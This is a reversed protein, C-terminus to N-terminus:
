RIINCSYYLHGSAERGFGNEQQGQRRQQPGAIGDDAAQQV